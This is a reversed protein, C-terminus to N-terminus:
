SDPIEPLPPQLLMLLAASEIVKLWCSMCVAERFPRWSPQVYCRHQRREIRKMCAACSAAPLSAMRVADLIPMGAPDDGSM